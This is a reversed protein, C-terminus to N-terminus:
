NVDTQPLNVATVPVSAIAPVSGTVGRRIEVTCLLDKGPAAVCPFVPRGATLTAATRFCLAVHPKKNGKKYENGEREKLVLCFVFLLFFSFKQKNRKKKEYRKLRKGKKKEKRKKKKYSFFLQESIEKSWLSSFGESHLLAHWHPLNHHPWVNKHTRYQDASSLPLLSLSLHCQLLPSSVQETM